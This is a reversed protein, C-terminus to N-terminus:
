PIFSNFNLYAALTEDFKKSALKKSTAIAEEVKFIIKDNIENRIIKNKKTQKM